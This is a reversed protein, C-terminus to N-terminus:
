WVPTYLSRGSGYNKTLSNYRLDAHTGTNELCICGTRTDWSEASGPTILLRDSSFHVKQLTDSRAFTQFTM